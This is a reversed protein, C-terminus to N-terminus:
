QIAHGIAVACVRSNKAPFRTVVSTLVRLVVCVGHLIHQVPLLVGAFPALPLSEIGSEMKSTVDVDDELYAMEEQIYAQYKKQEMRITQVVKERARKMEAHRTHYADIEDLNDNPPISVASASRNLLIM